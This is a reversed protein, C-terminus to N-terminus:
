EKVVSDFKTNNKEDSTEGDSAEICVIGDGEWWIDERKEPDIPLPAEGYLEHTDNWKNGFYINFGTM